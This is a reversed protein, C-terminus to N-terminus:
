STMSTPIRQTTSQSEMMREKVVARLTNMQENQIRMLDEYLQIIGNRSRAGIILLDGDVRTGAFHLTAITRALPVNMEWDFVAGEEQLAEVFLEAKEASGGDVVAIFPRGPACREAIGLEDYIVIRITGADDCRLAIGTGRDEIKSVSQTM